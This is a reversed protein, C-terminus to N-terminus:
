KAFLPFNPHVSDGFLVVFKKESFHYLKAGPYNAAVHVAYFFMPQPLFPEPKHVGSTAFVCPHPV